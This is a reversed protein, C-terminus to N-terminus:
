AAALSEDPLRDCSWSVLRLSNAMNIAAATNRYRQGLLKALGNPQNVLKRQRDDSAPSEVWYRLAVTIVHKPKRSGDGLLGQDAQEVHLGLVKLNGLEYRRELNPIVVCQGIERCLLRFLPPFVTEGYEARGEPLAWTKESDLRTLLIGAGRILLLRVTPMCDQHVRGSFGLVGTQWLPTKTDFRVFDTPLTQTQLM